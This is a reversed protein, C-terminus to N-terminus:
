APFSRADTEPACGASQAAGIGTAIRALIASVEASSTPGRAARAAATEGDVYEMAYYPRGDAALGADLVRVVAPHSIAQVARMVELYRAISADRLPFGLFLLKLAM